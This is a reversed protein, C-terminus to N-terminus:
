GKLFYSEAESHDKPKAYFNRKLGEVFIHAYWRQSTEHWVIGPHPVRPKVDVLVGLEQRDRELPPSAAALELAKAEAAEKSTFLGGYLVNPGRYIQVRWKQHWTEWYVGKVKGSTQGPDEKKSRPDSCVYLFVRVVDSLELCCGLSDTLGLLWVFMRCVAFM